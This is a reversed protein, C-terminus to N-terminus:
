EGCADGEMSDVVDPFSGLIKKLEVFYVVLLNERHCPRREHHTSNSEQEACYWDM